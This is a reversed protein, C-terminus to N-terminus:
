VFTPARNRRGGRYYLSSIVVCRQLFYPGGMGDVLDVLGRAPLSRPRRDPEFSMPGAL